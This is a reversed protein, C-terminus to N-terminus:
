GPTSHCSSLVLFHTNYLAGSSDSENTNLFSVVSSTLIDCVPSMLLLRVYVPENPLNSAVDKVALIPSNSASVIVIPPVIIFLVIASLTLARKPVSALVIAPFLTTIDPGPPSIIADDIDAVSNAYKPLTVESM